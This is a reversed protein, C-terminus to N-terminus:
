RKVCMQCSWAHYEKPEESAFFANGDNFAVYPSGERQFARENLGILKDKILNQPLAACLASFGCASLNTAGFDRARLKDLIEGSNELSWFLNKGSVENM